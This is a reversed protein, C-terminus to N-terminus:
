RIYFDLLKKGEMYGELHDGIHVKVTQSPSGTFILDGIKLTNRHSLRVIQADLQQRMLLTDGSQVTKGNIDLRFKIGKNLEDGSSLIFDGLVSSQDFGVAEAWPLGKQSLRIQLDHAVFNAGLTIERYYRYAFRHSISKGLRAIKVVLEAGVRIDESFDPLFFPKHDKLISSDPKLYIFPEEEKSLFSEHLEKNNQPYNNGWVFIKM